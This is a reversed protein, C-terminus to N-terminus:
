YKKVCVIPPEFLIIKRGNIIYVGLVMKADPYLGRVNMIKSGEGSTLSRDKLVSYM